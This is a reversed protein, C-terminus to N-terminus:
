KPLENADRIAKPKKNPDVYYAGDVRITGDPNGLLRPQMGPIRVYFGYSVRKGESSTVVYTFYKPTSQFFVHANLKSDVRCLPPSFSLWEGLPNAALIRGTNGDKVQIYLRQKQNETLSCVNFECRGGNPDALSQNWVRAGQHVAFHAKSSIFSNQGDPLRVMAQGYYYAPRTLDYLHRIDIRRSIKQGPKITVTPFRASRAPPLAEAGQTRTVTIDLWPMHGLDKMDLAVGTGNTISLEVIVAEGSLYDKKLTKFEVAIQSYAQMCFLATVGFLLTLYKM